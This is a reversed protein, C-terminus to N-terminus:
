PLPMPAPAMSYRDKLTFGDSWLYNVMGVNPTNLQIIGNNQGCGPQTPVLTM